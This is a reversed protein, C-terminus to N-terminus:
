ELSYDRIELPALLAKVAFPVEQPPTAGTSVAERNEYWHSLLLKMAARAGEPVNDGYDNPSVGSDAYGADYEIVVSNVTGLKPIPWLGGFVPLVRAPDQYTDTQYVSTAVTTLTGGQDTYKVSNVVIVPGRPLRILPAFCDLRLELTRRVWSRRCYNETWERSAKILALILADQDTDDVRLHVKAQDLSIPEAAPATKVAVSYNM